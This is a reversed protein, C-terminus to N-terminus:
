ATRPSPRHIAAHLAQWAPEWPWYQPLHLRVRRASRAIRAPVNILHARITATTARAHFAGALVGAARTLNHAIAWLVTWAANAPFSGSPLHALASAAADAIVQEVIAHDRHQGEAQLMEFTSTVFVAHPRWTTFLEDQGAATQPNLRKVRRVILRGSAQQKKPRSTFAVYPVEALAADSVLEGTETDVFADPYHIPTWRTDPIAAITTNVSPNSGTTLSVAAGYRAATAVVDACSFKSDARVVIRAAAALARVTTLAEALLRAAGRVDAAKGRRLRIAVVVPRALPTSATAILPHLTKKGTLRGVAVGQKAGGYVQRHTSDLDVFVVEDAGPLLPTREALRILTQRLVANLQQVHGHTFSRLFTGLTSPARIEGFVLDNGAHRLRDVDEISDAGAVMGAVLSMVKAHPNAGAGNAAGIISVHEGVLDPLGVQQALALVPVLGADAILNPDDFAVDVATGAHCSQM